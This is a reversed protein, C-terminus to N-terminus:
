QVLNGQIVSAAFSGLPYADQQYPPCRRLTGRYLM